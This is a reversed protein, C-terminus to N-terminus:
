GSVGVAVSAGVAHVAHSTRRQLGELGLGGRVHVAV